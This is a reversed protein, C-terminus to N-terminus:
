LKVITKIESKFINLARFQSYEKKHRLLDNTLIFSILNDNKDLDFIIFDKNSRKIKQYNIYNTFITKNM